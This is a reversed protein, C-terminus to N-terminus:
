KLTFSSIPCYNATVGFKPLSPQFGICHELPANYALRRAATGRLPLPSMSLHQFLNLM